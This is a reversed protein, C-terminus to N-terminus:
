QSISVFISFHISKKLKALYFVLISIDSYGSLWQVSEAWNLGVSNGRTPNIHLKPPWSAQDIGWVVIEYIEPMNHWVNLDGTKSCNWLGIDEMATTLLGIIFWLSSM